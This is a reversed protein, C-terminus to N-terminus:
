RIRFIDLIVKAHDGNEVLFSDHSIEIVRYYVEGINLLIDSRAYLGTSTFNIEIIKELKQLHMENVEVDVWDNGLAINALPYKMIFDYAETYGVLNNQKDRLEIKVYGRDQVYPIKEMIRELNDKTIQNEPDIKASEYFSLSSDSYNGLEYLAIGKNNLSEVSNPKIKLVRDFYKISEDYNKLKLLIAGKNSLAQINNEDMSIIKDLIKLAKDYQLNNILMTSKNHLNDIDDNLTGSVSLVAYLFITLIVEM